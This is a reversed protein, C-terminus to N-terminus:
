VAHWVHTIEAQIKGSGRCMKCPEWTEGRVSHQDHQWGGQGNCVNCVFVGSKLHETRANVYSMGEPPTVIITEQKHSM